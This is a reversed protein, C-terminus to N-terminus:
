RIERIEIPWTFHFQLISSMVTEAITYCLIMLNLWEEQRRVAESVLSTSKSVHTLRPVLIPNRERYHFSVRAIATEFTFRTRMLIGGSDDM